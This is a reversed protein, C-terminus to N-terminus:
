KPYRTIISRGIAQLSRGCPRHLVRCHRKGVWFHDIPRDFTVMVRNTPIRCQRRRIKPLP